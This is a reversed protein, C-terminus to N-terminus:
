HSILLYAAIILWVVWVSLVKVLLTIVFVKVLLTIVFIPRFAYNLFSLADLSVLGSFTALIVTIWALLLWVIFIQHGTGFLVLM